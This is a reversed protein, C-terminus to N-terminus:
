KPKRRQLRSALLPLLTVFLLGGIATAIYGEGFSDSRGARGIELLPLQAGLSCPSLDPLMPM